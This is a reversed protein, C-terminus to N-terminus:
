LSQLSRKSDPEGQRYLSQYLRQYLPYCSCAAAELKRRNLIHVQGRSYEIVERHQFEAALVSVTSRRTGLMTALLDQTVELVEVQTHDELVLLLSALRERAKHDLHCAANQHLIAIQVQLLELLRGRIETSSWFAQQLDALDIRWATGVLQMFCRSPIRAPGLLHLVGVVSENGLRGVGIAKGKTTLAATSALGSTLFWGFRPVQDPEYFVAGAPILVETCRDLLFKCSEHSLSELLRNANGQAILM